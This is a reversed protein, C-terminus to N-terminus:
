RFSGPCRVWSSSSTDSATTGCERSTTTCAPRSPCPSRPTPARRRPSSSSSSGALNSLFIFVAFAGIMPLYRRAAGEGIVDDLLNSLSQVVVEALQQLWGPDDRRLRSRLPIAVLCVVALVVLAMVVHEPVDTPGFRDEVGTWGAVADWLRNVPGYFISQAHEEAAHAQETHAQEAM